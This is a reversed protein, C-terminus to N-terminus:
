REPPPQLTPRSTPLPTHQAAAGRRTAIRRVARRCWVAASADEGGDWGIASHERTGSLVRRDLGGGEAERPHALTRRRTGCRHLLSLRLTGRKPGGVRGRSYGGLVRRAGAARNAHLAHVACPYRHLVKQAATRPERASGGRWGHRSCDRNYDCPCCSDTTRVRLLTEFATHLQDHFYYTDFGM